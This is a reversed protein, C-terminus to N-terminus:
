ETSIERDQAYCNCKVTSLHATAILHLKSLFEPEEPTKCGVFRFILIPSSVCDSKFISNSMSKPKNFLFMGALCSKSSSVSSHSQSCSNEFIAASNEACVEFSFDLCGFFSIALFSLM